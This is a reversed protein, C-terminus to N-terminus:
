FKLVDAGEETATCDSVAPVTASPSAKVIVIGTLVACTLLGMRLYQGAPFVSDGAIARLLGTTASATCFAFYVQEGACKSIVLVYALIASVVLYVVAFVASRTMGPTATLIGSLRSAVTFDRVALGLFAAAHILAVLARKRNTLIAFVPM